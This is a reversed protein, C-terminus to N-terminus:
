EQIIHSLPLPLPLPCNAQLKYAQLTTGMAGDIIM